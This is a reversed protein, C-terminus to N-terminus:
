RKCTYESEETRRYTGGKGPSKRLNKGAVRMKFLMERRRARRLCVSHRAEAVGDSADLVRDLFRAGPVKEAVKEGLKSPFRRLDNLVYAKLRSRSRVRASPRDERGTEVRRVRRVGVVVRAKGVDSSLERLAYDRPRLGGPKPPRVQGDRRTVARRRRRRLASLGLRFWSVSVEISTLNSTFNPLEAAEFRPM